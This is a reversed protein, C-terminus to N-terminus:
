TNSALRAELEGIRALELAAQLAAVTGKLTTVKAALHTSSTLHATLTQRQEDLLGRLEEITRERTGTLAGLITGATRRYRYVGRAIGGAVGGGSVTLLLWTWLTAACGPM